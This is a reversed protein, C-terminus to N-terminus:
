VRCLAVPLSSPAPVRLPLKSFICLMEFQGSEVTFHNRIGHSWRYDYLIFSSPYTVGLRLQSVRGWVKSPGWPQDESVTDSFLVSNGFQGM